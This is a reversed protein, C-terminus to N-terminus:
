AAAKSHIITILALELPLQPIPSRRSMALAEILEVIADAMADASFGALHAELAGGEPLLTGGVVAGDGAVKAMLADRFFAILMKTLYEMEYGDHYLRNVLEIATALEKRAIMGFLDHLAQRPPIGLIEEVESQTITTDEVAMIKGLMSEGDRVSGEAAFAIATAAEPQLLVGEGKAIAALRKAVIEQRPRRFDFHQTRSVITEPVKDLETTALVFVAHGPPEELTKLLANFADKSLQHIEDIIYVKKGGAPPAYRVAERLERIDDIGRNSAADIEILNLAQGSNFVECSPCVNCPAHKPSNTCNVAKAVLRAVTTNHVVFDNAVFNHTGVVELDYVQYDGTYKIETIRDWYLDSNAINLIEQSNFAEGCFQLKARSPRFRVSSSFRKPEAYNLLRGVEVWSGNHVRKEMKVLGWVELPVVDCNPNTPRRSLYQALRQLKEEKAGIFGIEQIFKLLSERNLIELVWNPYMNNNYQTERYRIRSIIGFRLLLHQVQYILQRSSSYYSVAVMTSIDVGGDGSYLVRLFLSVLSKELQFILPPIFKDKSKYGVLGLSKLSGMISNKSQGPQNIWNHRVKQVARYTPTRTGNSDYKVIRINPSMKAASIFDNVLVADSNTFGLSKNPDSTSGEAILHAILRVQYAPMNTKGFIPLVRPVGIFDGVKLEGLEKWGGVTLFPHPLTTEIERGLATVVKYCSKIGDDLYKNPRIMRLKYDPSLTLLNIKRREYIEKITLIEGTIADAIKTDFKVCKGIGRPGSFLYAHAVRGTEVQRRIVSVIHDQGVVESFDRPRYKRYLVQYVM